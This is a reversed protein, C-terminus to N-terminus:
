DMPEYEYDSEESDDLFAKTIVSRQSEILPESQKIDPSSVLEKPKETPESPETLVTEPEPSEVKTEELPSEQSINMDIEEYPLNYSKRNDPSNFSSLIEREM